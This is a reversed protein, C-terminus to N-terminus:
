WKSVILVVQPVMKSDKPGTQTVKPTVPSNSHGRLRNSYNQDGGNPGWFTGEPIMKQSKKHKKSAKELLKKLTSKPLRKPHRPVEELCSFSPKTYVFGNNACKWRYGWLLRFHGGIPVRKAGKATCFESFPPGIVVLFVPRWFHRFFPGLVVERARHSPWPSNALFCWNVLLAKRKPELVLGFQVVGPESGQTELKQECEQSYAWKILPTIPTHLRMWIYWPNTQIEYICMHVYLYRYTTICIYMCLAVLPHIALPMREFM